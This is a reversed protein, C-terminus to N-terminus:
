LEEDPPRVAAPSRKGYLEEDLPHAEAPSRVACREM